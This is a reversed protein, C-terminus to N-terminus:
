SLKLNRRKELAKRLRRAVAKPLRVTTARKFLESTKRYSELFEQCRICAVVHAELARRESITLRGDVYDMLRSITDRCTMEHTM